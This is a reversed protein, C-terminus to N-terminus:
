ILYTPLWQPVDVNEMKTVPLVLTCTLLLNQMVKNHSQISFASHNRVTKLMIKKSRISSGLESSSTFTTYQVHLGIIRKNCQRCVAVAVSFGFMIVIIIITHRIV